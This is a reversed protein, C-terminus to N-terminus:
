SIVDDYENYFKYIAEQKFILTGLCLLINELQDLYISYM